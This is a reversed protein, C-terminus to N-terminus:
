RRSEEVQERNHERFCERLSHGYSGCNFCRCLPALGALQESLSDASSSPSYSSAPAGPLATPVGQQVLRLCHQSASWVAAAGLGHAWVGTGAGGLRCGCRGANRSRKAPRGASRAVEAGLLGESAPRKRTSLHLPVDSGRDYRPVDGVREYSINFWLTDAGGKDPPEPKDEWVFAADDDGNAAGGLLMTGPNYALTGSTM